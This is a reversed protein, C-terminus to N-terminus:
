RARAYNMRDANEVFPPDSWAIRNIFFCFPGFSPRFNQKSCGKQPWFRANLTPLAAPLPTGVTKEVAFAPIGGAAM